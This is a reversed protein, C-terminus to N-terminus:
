DEDATLNVAKAGGIFCSGRRNIQNTKLMRATGSSNQQQTKIMHMLAQVIGIQGDRNINNTSTCSDDRIGQM